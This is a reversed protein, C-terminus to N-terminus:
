KARRWVVPAPAGGGSPLPQVYKLEDPTVTVNIRKQDGATWNPFTSGEIHFTLDTGSLSYTGFYALSGDVTVKSEAPTAQTRSNAAYKPLDGRLFIMSFRGNADFTAAGKPNPGYADVASTRADFRQDSSWRRARADQPARYVGQQQSEVFRFHLRYFDPLGAADCAVLKGDIILSRVGALRALADVMWRVRSSHDHGNKTFVAASGGHKHLQIRWGDFRAAV